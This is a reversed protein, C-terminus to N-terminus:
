RTMRRQKIDLFSSLEPAAYGEIGGISHAPDSKLLAHRAAAYARQASSEDGAAELALGLHLQAVPDHPTLFACKRFAVIAADFDGAAIAEQGVRALLEAPSTSRSEASTPRDGSESLSLGPNERERPAPRPRMRIPPRVVTGTHSRARHKGARTEVSAGGAIAQRYVFADGIAVAKFRDSM